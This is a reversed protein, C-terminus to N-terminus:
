FPSDILIGAFIHVVEGEREMNKSTKNITCLYFNLKKATFDNNRCPDTVV